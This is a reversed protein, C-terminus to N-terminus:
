RSAEVTRYQGEADNFRWWRIRYGKGTMYGEERLVGELSLEELRSRATYYHTKYGKDQMHKQLQTPTVLGGHKDLVELVDKKSITREGKKM